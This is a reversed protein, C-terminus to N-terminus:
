GEVVFQKVHESRQELLVKKTGVMKEVTPRDYHRITILQLDTTLELDFFEELDNQLRQLKKEDADTCLTFSVASNRMLNMRIRNNALSTFIQSLNHEAIFSFNKPKIHVLVQNDKVIIVPLDTRSEIDKAVVTGKGEPNVFSRVHLPINRNQLPQMTKPHLVSAGYYSMEVADLYSLGDFMVCEDFRKPDANLIGPVDKWIVTETANLAWAFIAATFDSGERGLTTTHGNRNKGIFGQTILVNNALMPPIKRTILGETVKFDVGAERYNDNTIIFNRADIWKAAMGISQLYTTIIKTSFVEGFGVIQDYLFDYNDREGLEFFWEFQLFLDELQHKPDENQGEYLEELIDFHFKRLALIKDKYDDNGKVFDNLIAELANTTKGMASIVVLLEGKGHEKIVRAVNRVADANKVSAGGFKFVRM